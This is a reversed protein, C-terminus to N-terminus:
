FIWDFWCWARIQFNIVLNYFFKRWKFFLSKLESYNSDCFWFSHWFHGLKAFTDRNKKWKGDQAKEQGILMASTPWTVVSALGQGILKRSAPWTIVDSHHKETQGDWSVRLDISFLSGPRSGAENIVIPTLTVWKVWEQAIKREKPHFVVKAWYRKCGILGNYIKIYYKVKCLQIFLIYLSM